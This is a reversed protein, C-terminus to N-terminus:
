DREKSDHVRSVTRREFNNYRTGYEKVKKYWLDKYYQEKTAHYKKAM